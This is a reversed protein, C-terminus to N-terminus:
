GVLTSWRGGDAHDAKGLLLIAILAVLLALGLPFTLRKYKSDERGIGSEEM